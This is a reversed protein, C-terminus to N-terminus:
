LERFEKELRGVQDKTLYKRAVLISSLRIKRGERHLLRGQLRLCEQVQAPTAYGLSSVYRGFIRDQLLDELTGDTLCGPPDHPLPANAPAAQEAPGDQLKPANM